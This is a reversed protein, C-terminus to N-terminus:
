CSYFCMIFSVYVYMEMLAVECETSVMQESKEAKDKIDKIKGFLQQIAVQAEELAQFHLFVWNIVHHKAGFWCVIPHKVLVQERPDSMIIVPWFHLIIRNLCTSITEFSTMSGCFVVLKGEEPVSCMFNFKRKGWCVNYKKLSSRSLPEPPYFWPRISWCQTTFQVQIKWRHVNLCRTWFQVSTWTSTRDFMTYKCFLANDSVLLFNSITVPRNVSLVAFVQFFLDIYMFYKVDTLYFYSFLKQAIGHVILCMIVLCFHFGLVHQREVHLAFRILKTLSELSRKKKKLDASLVPESSHSFHGRTDTGLRPCPESGFVSIARGFLLITSRSRDWASM